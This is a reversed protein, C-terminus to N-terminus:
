KPMDRLGAIMNITLAVVFTNLVFSIMGHMLAVRRLKRASIEVDSVQFTMGIVFSFYAFDLYDPKDEEPFSLGGAHHQENDEDDDYYIHAYHMTYMTHVMGWALMIGAVAVPVYLVPKVDTVEDSVTLLLVMVMSIFCALLILIFVFTRSGDERRAYRRIEEVTRTFFVIWCTTNYVLAFVDWLVMIRLLPTLSTGQILLFVLGTIGLSILVRHIPHLKLFINGKM